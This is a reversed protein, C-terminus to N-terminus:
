AGALYQGSVPPVPSYALLARRVARQVASFVRDPSRFRVEAKAPHVNVDVEEPGARPVPGGAPLARGDVPHPLGAAAGRFARQGAGLARQYFLYDRQPELPDAGGPQYLGSVRLDEDEFNVELMQRAVEIGYLGALVERRDGRGSTQLVPRGDQFLHFRVQPIPWPM